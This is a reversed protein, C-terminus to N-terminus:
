GDPMYKMKAEIMRAHSIHLIRALKHVIHDEYKDLRGDAYIVQWVMEMVRFKEESDYRSNIIETFYWLDISERRQEESIRILEDVSEDDLGFKERLIKVILERESETYEDDSLAVELLIVATAVLLRKDSGASATEEEGALIRKLREFLVRGRSSMKEGTEIRVRRGVGRRLV